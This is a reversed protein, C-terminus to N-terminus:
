PLMHTVFTVQRNLGIQISRVEILLPTFGLKIIAFFDDHRVCYASSEETICHASLFPHYVYSLFEFLFSFEQLNVYILYKCLRIIKM